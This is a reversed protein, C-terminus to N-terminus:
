WYVLPRIKSIPSKTNTKMLFILTAISADADARLTLSFKVKVPVNVTAEGEIYVKRM